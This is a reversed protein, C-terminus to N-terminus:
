LLVREWVFSCSLPLALHLNVTSTEYPAEIKQRRTACPSDFFGGLVGLKGMWLTTVYYYTVHDRTVPIEEALTGPVSPLSDRVELGLL